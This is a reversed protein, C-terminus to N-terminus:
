KGDELQVEKPFDEWLLEVWMTIELKEIQKSSIFRNYSKAFQYEIRHANILHKPCISYVHIFYEKRSPM